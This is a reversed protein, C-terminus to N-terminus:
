PSYKPLVYIDDFVNDYTQWVMHMGALVSCVVSQFLIISIVLKNIQAELHSM